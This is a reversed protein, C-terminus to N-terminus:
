VYEWTIDWKNHGNVDEIDVSIPRNFERIHKDLKEYEDGTLRLVIDHYTKNIGMVHSQAGLLTAKIKEKEM